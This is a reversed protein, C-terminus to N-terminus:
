EYKLSKVPNTRAAKLSHLSVIAYSIIVAFIGTVFFLYWHMPALFAFNKVWNHYALYSLPVSIVVAIAVLAAIDRFLLSVIQQVTAGLVKRVGIEKYRQQATYSTLGLLGLSSILITILTFTTILRTQRRDDRYLEALTKDLFSFEFDRDVDNSNWVAEIEALATKLRESDVRIHLLGHGDNENFIVMPKIENHLSMINYDRIVGVVEAMQSPRGTESVGWVLRQGIPEDWGYFEVLRENVIVTEMTDIHREPQFTGGKVFGIEMTEFYGDGVKLYDVAERQAEEDHQTIESMVMRGVRGGPSAQAYSAALVHPKERLDELMQPIESQLATDQIPVIVLDEKNFGLYRDSMYQMQGTMLLALVVVSVSITFQIGVLFKRLRKSKSGAKFSGKLASAAPIKSLYLAPYLGSLVGVILTTLIGFYILWPEALLDLSLEKQILDQFYPVQIIIEVLIVSLFLAILTLSVSEILLQWVLDRRTSGLVKRVGIEKARGSARATALNMYNIMALALILLGIGSFVMLYEDKGRPLDYEATSNYHIEALAEPKIDYDTNIARALSVMYKDHLVNFAEKVERIDRDPKLRVYTYMSAVWLSQILEERSFTEPFAPLLAKFKIHSNEPLDAIVASVTFRSNNTRLTKGIPNEDGFITTALSKTLVMSREKDFATEKSGLIFEAPFLDFYTTDSYFIGDEYFSQRGSKLLINEGASGIRVYDQIADTEEQLLPALGVSTPAFHDVKNELYLLSTLRYIRDHDPNHKDYTLESRLFLVVLLTVALGIALGLVNLLTYTRHQLIARIFFRWSTNFM